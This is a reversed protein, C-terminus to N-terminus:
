AGENYLVIFLCQVCVFTHGWLRGHVAEVQPGDKTRQGLIDGKSRGAPKLEPGDPDLELALIEPIRGPDM